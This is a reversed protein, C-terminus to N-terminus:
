GWCCKTKVGSVEAISRALGKLTDIVLPMTDLIFTSVLIAQEENFFSKELLAQLVMEVARKKQVGKGKLEKKSQVLRMILGTLSILDTRWQIGDGVIEEIEEIIDSIM